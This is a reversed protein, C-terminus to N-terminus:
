THRTFFMRIRVRARIRMQIRVRARIGMQIRVRARSRMQIRVRARIPIRARTSKQASTKPDPSPSPNPSPNPNPKPNPNPNPARSLHCLCRGKYKKLHNLLLVIKITIQNDNKVSKYACVQKRIEPTLSFSFEKSLAVMTLFEAFDMSGTGDRNFAIM